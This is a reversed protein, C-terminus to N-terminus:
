TRADAHIFFFLKTAKSLAQTRRIMRWCMFFGRCVRKAAPEVRAPALRRQPDIRHRSAGCGRAEDDVAAGVPLGVQGPVLPEHARKLGPAAGM